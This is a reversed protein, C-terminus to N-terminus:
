KKQNASWREARKQLDDLFTKIDPASGNAAKSVFGNIAPAIEASYFPNAEDMLSPKSVSAIRKATEAFKDKPDVYDQKELLSSNGFNIYWHKHREYGAFFKMAEWAAEVNKVDKAMIMPDISTWGEGNPGLNMVPQFRDLLETNGTAKYDSMTNGGSDDLQIAIKNKKLGFNEAGQGNVFAAPPIAAAEKLWELVKVMEPSNLQWKIDAPQSFSGTGGTAGFAHTLAVFTSGNLTNARWYLGYNDEGTVPNKGTMKKAKELIEQPTPKDSLYPVKWQDFLLKDYVTMRRGTSAPLGYHHEGKVLQYASKWASQLYMNPDFTPDGKILDDIDRLLGQEYFQSAFSGGTYIVDVDKSLLMAQQKAQANEWPIQTIQLKINPYKKYFTDKLHQNLGVSTKGTIPDLGNEMQWGAIAMRVEGSINSVELADGSSKTDNGVTGSSCAALSFGTTLTILISLLKKM